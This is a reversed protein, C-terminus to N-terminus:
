QLECLLPHYIHHESDNLAARVVDGIVFVCPSGLGTEQLTQLLGGLETIAHAQEPRSAHQILAVPTQAPLGGALLGAQIEQASGVGM